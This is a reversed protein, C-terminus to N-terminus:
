ELDEIEQRVLKVIDALLESADQTDAKVSELIQARDSRTAAINFIYDSEATDIYRRVQKFDESITSM